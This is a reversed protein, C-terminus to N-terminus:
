KRIAEVLLTRVAARVLPPLARAAIMVDRARHDPGAVLRRGIAGFDSGPAAFLQPLPESTEVHPWREARPAPDPRWVVAEAGAAKAAALIALQEPTTTRRGRKLEAVIHRPGRWLLLDSLGAPSRRSDGVHHWTWGNAAAYDTVARQFDAELETVRRRTM